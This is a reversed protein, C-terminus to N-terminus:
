YGHRWLVSQAATTYQLFMLQEMSRELRGVHSLGVALFVMCLFVLLLLLLLLHLTRSDLPAPFMDAAYTSLGGQTGSVANSGHNPYQSTGDLQRPM